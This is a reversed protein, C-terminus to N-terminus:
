LSLGRAACRVVASDGEPKNQWWHRRWDQLCRLGVFTAARCGPRVPGVLPRGSERADQSRPLALRGAVGHSARELREELYPVSAMLVSSRAPGCILGPPDRWGSRASCSVPPEAVAAWGNTCCGTVDLFSGM